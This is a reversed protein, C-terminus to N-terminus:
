LNKRMKDTIEKFKMEFLSKNVKAKLVIYSLIAYIIFTFILLHRTKDYDDDVINYKYLASSIQQENCKNGYFKYILHKASLGPPNLAYLRRISKGFEHTPIMSDCFLLHYVIAIIIPATPNKNFCTGIIKSFVQVTIFCFTNVFLISGYIDDREYFNCISSVILVSALCPIMDLVAKVLFYSEASYWDISCVFWIILLSMLFKLKSLIVTEINM